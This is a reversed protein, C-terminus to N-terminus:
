YSLGLRDMAAQKIKRKHPKGTLLCPFTDFKLYYTPIDGLGDLTETKLMKTKCFDEVEKETVDCGENAVFCACVEEYLRKDPVGVVVTHLIQDMKSIVDEAVEPMVKRTGRSIVDTTRGKIVLSEDDKIFGRDGTKFWGGPLFSKKTAEDNLYYGHSMTGSRVCIEGPEGLETVDSNEDIVKVEVGPHIKGVEGPEITPGVLVNLAVFWVETCGYGVALGGSYPMIIQTHFNEIMQGGTAIYWLKFQTDMYKDKIRILDTIFYPMFSASTCHEAEIIEWIKETQQGQISASSSEMFVRTEGRCFNLLPSGGPWVFPRDNYFINNLYVEERVPPHIELNMASFHSHAVMKSKGTSGSTTFVIINDEPQLTPLDFDIDGMDLVKKLTHHSEMGIMDRLFVFTPSSSAPDEGQQSPQYKLRPMLQLILDHFRTGKGSDILLGKCRTKTIIDVIDNADTDSTSLHVATGGALIIALEGVVWEITNPGFIAVCDGRKIGKSVLFKALQMSNAKLAKFTITERHDDIDHRILVEKDPFRDVMRFIVDIVTEYIFPSYRQRSIYSLRKKAPQTAEESQEDVKDPEMAKREQETTVDPQEGVKDTQESARETHEM